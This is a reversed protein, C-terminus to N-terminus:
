RRFKHLHPYDEKIEWGDYAILNICYSPITKCLTILQERTGETWHYAPMSGNAAYLLFTNYGDVTSEPISLSLNRCMCNKYIPCFIVYEFDQPNTYLGRNWLLMGSGNKLGVLVGTDHPTISKTKIYPAYFEKYFEVAEDSNGGIFTKNIQPKIMMKAQNYLSYCQKLRTITLHKNYSAILNPLNLAAVIGIIGLTILVEALTFATRKYM